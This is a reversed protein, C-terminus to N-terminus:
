ALFVTEEKSVLKKCKICRGTYIDFVGQKSCGFGRQITTREEWELVEHDDDYFTHVKGCKLCKYTNAAICSDSEKVHETLKYSHVCFLQKFNIM